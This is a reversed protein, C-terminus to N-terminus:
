PNGGARVGSFNAPLSTADQTVVCVATDGDAAGIAGATVTYGVPVVGGQLVLGVDSCNAVPECDPSAASHGNLACGAYNINMASSFTAATANLAAEQADDQLNVFRPVALAALVGLIVIVIILEILTFGTQKNM